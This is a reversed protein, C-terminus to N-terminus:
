RQKKDILDEFKNHPETQYWYAVYALDDQREFLGKYCVGIQKVTVKLHVQFYIPDLVHWRYFGGITTCDYNHYPNHILTDNASYYPYWLFPTCYNNEVTKGNVQSAFSWSGGFYDEM